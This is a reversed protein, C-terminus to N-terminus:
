TASIRGLNPLGAHPKLRTIQETRLIYRPSLIGVCGAGAVKCKRRQEVLSACDCRLGAKFSHRGFPAVTLYSDPCCFMLDCIIGRLSNIQPFTSCCRPVIVNFYDSLDEDFAPM